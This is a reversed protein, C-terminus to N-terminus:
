SQEVTNLQDRRCCPGPVQGQCCCGFTSFPQVSTIFRFSDNKQIPFLNLSISCHPRIIELQKRQNHHSLFNRIYPFSSSTSAPTQSQFEQHSSHFTAYMIYYYCYCLRECCNCYPQSHFMLLTMLWLLIQVIIANLCIM